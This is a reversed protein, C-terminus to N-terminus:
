LMGGGGCMLKCCGVVRWILKYWGVVRRMDSDYLRIGADRRMQCRVMGDWQCTKLNTLRDHYSCSDEDVVHNLKVSPWLHDAGGALAARSTRRHAGSCQETSQQAASQEVESHQAVYVNSHANLQHM